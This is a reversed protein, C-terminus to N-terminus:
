PRSSPIHPDQPGQSGGSSGWIVGKPGGFSGWIVGKLARKLGKQPTVVGGRPGLHGRGVHLPPFQPSKPPAPVWTFHPSQGFIAMHGMEPPGLHGM